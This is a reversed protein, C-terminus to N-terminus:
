TPVRQLLRCTTCHAGLIFVKIRGEM